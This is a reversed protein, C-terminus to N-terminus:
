AMILMFPGQQVYSAQDSCLLNCRVQRSLEAYCHQTTYPLPAGWQQVQLLHTVSRRQAGMHPGAIAFHRRKTVAQPQM